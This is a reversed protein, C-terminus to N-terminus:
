KATLLKEFYEIACLFFFFFDFPLKYEDGNAGFKGSYKKGAYIRVLSYNYNLNIQPVRITKFSCM